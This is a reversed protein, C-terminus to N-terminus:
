LFKGYHLISKGDKTVRGPEAVSKSRVRGVENGAGASYMSQPRGRQTGYGSDSQPSPSALQMALPAGGRSQPRSQSGGFHPQPSVARNPPAGQSQPQSGYNTNARPRANGAPNAGYPNPSVARPPNQYGSSSPSRNYSSASPPRTYSANSPARGQNPSSHAHYMDPRPSIARPPGPSVSRAMDAGQKPGWTQSRPASAYGPQGNFVNDKQATYKKTAERMAKATHAPAPAGLRSVPIDYAPPPTGRQAGAINANSLPTPMGGPLPSAGPAPTPIGAYRDATQRVASAKTVGKLEELAQAIPDMEMNDHAQPQGRQQSPLGSRADPSAVDFVNNGVNLQFKARPDVPERDPTRDQGRSMAGGRSGRYRAPSDQGDTDYSVNRGVPPASWTNRSNTPTATASSHESGGNALERGHKSKSRKFPSNFFGRKRPSPEAEIPTYQPQEMQKVPSVSGSGMGSGVGSSPGYSTFSSPNSYESTSDRSSPRNPSPAASRESPPPINPTTRCFQTMGNAPYPDHPVQPVDQLNVGKYPNGRMSQPQGGRQSQRMPDIYPQQPLDSRLSRDSRDSRRFPDQEPPPAPKAAMGMEQALASNPNPDHHSDFVSPQPSSSRITPNIARPFQAVTYAEDASAESVADSVDGRCFDIYKPPDPIEQGTGQNKIFSMIDKEPDCDELSLRVKEWSADDSVCTTSAINAFSWLSTKLFDLREEELDQFKDCAAKWERNWRGTTEELIKIAAEYESSNSSMQIQTKELKAKNKREEQGMVMHGQALYGKVKLCDNEYKDRAKNATGTQQTKSKHLKEIGSQVIKRREKM